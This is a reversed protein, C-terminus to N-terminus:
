SFNKDLTILVLAVESILPFALRLTLAGENSVVKLTSFRPAVKGAQNFFAVKCHGFPVENVKLEVVKSALQLSIVSFAVLMLVLLLSVKLRLPDTVIGLSTFGLSVM